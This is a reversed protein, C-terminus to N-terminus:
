RVRRIKLVSLSSESIYKQQVEFNEPILSELKTTNMISKKGSQFFIENFYQLQLDDRTYMRFLIDCDPEIIMVDCNTRCKKLIQKTVEELENFSFSSLFCDIILSTIESDLCSNDFSALNSCHKYSSDSLDKTSLYVKM